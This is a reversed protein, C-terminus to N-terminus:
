KTADHVLFSRMWEITMKLTCTLVVFTQFLTSTPVEFFSLIAFEGLENM